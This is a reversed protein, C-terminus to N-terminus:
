SRRKGMRIFPEEILRRSGESVLLLGAILLPLSIARAHWNEPAFGFFLQQWLYVSYSTRGLWELAPTRLVRGFFDNPRLVTTAIILPLAASQFIRQPERLAPFRMAVVLGLAFLALLSVWWVPRMKEAFRNAFDRYRLLLALICPFMFADLRLHTYGPLDGASSLHLRLVVSLVILLTAIGIARRGNTMVLIPPWLCYFHEEIALSWYHGTFWSQPPLYNAYFFAAPAIDSWRLSMVGAAGLAAIVALYTWAAPLIRFTRRIYFSRLSIGGTREQEVLLRTTILYGSIAFFLMVGFTGMRFTLLNLLGGSHESQATLAHSAVVLTIAIARWGDLTPLYRGAPQDSLGASKKHVAASNSIM